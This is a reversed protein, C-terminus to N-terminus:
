AELGPGILWYRFYLGNMAKALGMVGLLVLAAHCCLLLILAVMSIYPSGGIAAFVATIPLLLLGGAWISALFAQHLHNRALPPAAAGHKLFLALLCIFALGPFLLLNLLYLSEALIALRQGPIIKNM